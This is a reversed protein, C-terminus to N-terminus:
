VDCNACIFALHLNPIRVSLAAQSCHHAVGSSDTGKRPVFVDQRRTRSIAYDVVTVYPLRILPQTFKNTVFLFNATQFPVMFILLGRRPAIVVLQHDPVFQISLRGELEALVLSSNLGDGPTRM